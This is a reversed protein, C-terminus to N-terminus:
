STAWAQLFASPSAPKPPLFKPTPGRDPETGPPALMRCQLTTNEWRAAGISPTKERFPRARRPARAPDVIARACRRRRGGARAVPRRLGGATDDEVRVRARRVTERTRKCYVAEARERGCVLAVVVGAPAPAPPAGNTAPAAADIPAPRPRLTEGAAIARRVTWVEPSAM